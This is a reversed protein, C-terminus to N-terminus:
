NFDNFIKCFVKATVEADYAASHALENVYDINLEKCIRALVTQGTALAGLSVTDLVSFPHFPLNKIKNRKFAEVLFGLDFHANHAVLIVRSCEYKSRQKNISKSINKLAVNEEVANRLPHSLDIKTFELSEPDIELGKFPEIHYRILEGLEFKNDKYELLQIAIELIPNKKNDLGGTELDLVVPLYKRIRDKLM